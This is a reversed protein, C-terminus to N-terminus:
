FLIEYKNAGTRGEKQKRLRIMLQTSWTAKRWNEIMQLSNPTSLQFSTTRLLYKQYQEIAYWKGNVPIGLGGHKRAVHRVM